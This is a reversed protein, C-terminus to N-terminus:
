KARDPVEFPEHVILMWGTGNDNVGLEIEPCCKCGYSETHKGHEWNPMVHVVRPTVDDEWELEDLNIM